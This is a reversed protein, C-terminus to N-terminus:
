SRVKGGGEGNNQRKASWITPVRRSRARRSLPTEGVLAGLRGLMDCHPRRRLTDVGGLPPFARKDAGNPLGSWRIPPGMAGDGWRGHRAPARLLLPPKLLRLALPAPRLGRLSREGVRLSPFPQLTLGAVCRFPRADRLPHRPRPPALHRLRRAPVRRFRRTAARSCRDRREARRQEALEPRLPHRPVRLALPVIGLAPRLALPM